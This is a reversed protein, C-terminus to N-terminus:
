SKVVEALLVSEEKIKSTELKEEAAPLREAQEAGCCSM